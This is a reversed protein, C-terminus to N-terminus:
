RRWAFAITRKSELRIQQWYPRFATFPGAEAPRFWLSAAMRKKLVGSICDDLEETIYEGFL